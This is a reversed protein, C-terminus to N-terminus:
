LNVDSMTADAWDTVTVTFTLPVWVDAIPDGPNFTKKDSNPNKVGGDTTQDPDVYGYADEAFNLTYTYIKGPEWKTDVPVYAWAYDASNDDQTYYTKSSDYSGSAKEYFGDDNKVYYTDFDESASSAVVTFTVPYVQEEVETVPTAPDDVKKINILFAIANGTSIATNWSANALGEAIAKENDGLEAVALQQPLLFQADGFNLDTANVHELTVAEDDIGKYALMASGLTWPQYDTTSWDFDNASTSATPMALAANSVINVMRMGKIKIEVNTAINKAQFKVQSTIHQFNLGVGSRFDARLGENYAVLYDKQDDKSVPITVETPIGTLDGGDAFATFTGKTSGDAWWYTQGEPFSWTAGNKTLQGKISKEPTGEPDEPANNAANSGAFFSGTADLYFKGLANTGTTTIAQARTSAGGVSPFIMLQDAKALQQAASQEIVADDNNSCSAMALAAVPLLYMFKKMVKSNKTLCYNIYLLWM